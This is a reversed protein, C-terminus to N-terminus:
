QENEVATKNDELPEEIFGLQIAFETASDGVLLSHMTHDLVHRAVGAANKVRRLGGVAGVNGTQGDMIMADLTVEGSEDPKHGWGVTGDCQLKECKSTGHTIADLVSGGAALIDWATDTAEPFAWTTIVAKKATTTLAFLM